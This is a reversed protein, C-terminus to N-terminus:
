DKLIVKDKKLKRIVNDLIGNIFTGSKQTSYAKAIEIYENLTVSTPIKPFNIIEAIACLMIIRDMFAIREADWSDQKIFSDILDNYGEKNGITMTFLQEAFKADEEDKFMPLLHQKGGDAWRKMTKLMFTSVTVLDDNWYVSKSELFESLNDDELIVKKMINRWFETDDKFSTEEKAMYQAYIDSNVVKELMLNIYIDSQWDIPNEKLYENLEDNENLAKIFANDIFRRNPNLEEETPLYKNRAYDLKLEQLRTLDCMMVFMAHYLEYTKDLSKSLEKKADTVSTYKQTLLYSYLMQVVKIRILSRNIM